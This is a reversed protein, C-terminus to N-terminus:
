LFCYGKLVYVSRPQLNALTYLHMKNTNVEPVYLRRIKEEGGKPKLLIRQAEMAGILSSTKFSIKNRNASQLEITFDSPNLHYQACLTVLIDMVPKSYLYFCLAPTGCTDM